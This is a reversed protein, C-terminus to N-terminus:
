PTSLIYEDQGITKQLEEESITLLEDKSINKITKLFCKKNRKVLICNFDDQQKVFYGVTSYIWKNPGKLYLAAPVQIETNEKIDIKTQLYSHTYLPKITLYDPLPNYNKEKDNEDTPNYWTYKLTLEEGKKIDKKAYIKNHWFKVYNYNSNFLKFWCNPEESYNYYGTYKIRVRSNNVFYHGSHLLTGEKIDELAFVGLGHIPSKKIQIM